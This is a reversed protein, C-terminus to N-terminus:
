DQVLFVVFEANKPKPVDEGQSFSYAWVKKANSVVPTSSWVFNGPVTNIPFVNKNVAPNRCALDFLSALEKANAMHFGAVADSAALADRWNLRTATGQCSDDVGSANNSGSDWSTGLPCKRWTTNTENDTVTGDLNDTYQHTPKLRQFENACNALLNVSFLSIAFAFVLGTGMRNKHNM